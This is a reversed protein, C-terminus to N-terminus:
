QDFWDYKPDSSIKTYTGNIQNFYNELKYYDFDDDDLSGITSYFVMNANSITLRNDSVSVNFSSPLLTGWGKESAWKIYADSYATSIKDGTRNIKLYSLETFALGGKNTTIRIVVYPNKLRDSTDVKYERFLKLGPGNLLGYFGVTYTIKIVGDEIVGDEKITKEMTWVNNRLKEWLGPVSETQFDEDCTTFTLCFLLFILLLLLFLKKNM